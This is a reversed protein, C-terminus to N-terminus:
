GEARNREPRPGPPRKAHAVLLSLLTRKSFGRVGCRGFRRHIRIPERRDDSEFGAEVEGAAEVVPALLEDAM